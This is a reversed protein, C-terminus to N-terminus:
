EVEVTRHYLKGSRTYVLTLGGSENAAIAPYEGLALRVPDTFSVRGGERTFATAMIEDKRRWVAWTTDIGTDDKVTAFHPGHRTEQTAPGIQILSNAPAKMKKGGWINAMFADLFISGIIAGRPNNPLEGIGIHNFDDGQKPYASYAAWTVPQAKAKVRLSNTYRSSQVSYGNLACHWVPPLKPRPIIMFDFKEGTKMGDWKGKRGVSWKTKDLAYWTCDKSMIVFEGAEPDFAVRGLGTTVGFFDVDTSDKTIRALAQGQEHKKGKEAKDVEKTGSRFACLVSGGSTAVTPVYIRSSKFVRTAVIAKWGNRFGAAAIPSTNKIWTGDAKFYVSAFGQTMDQTDVTIAEVGDKIAIATRAFQGGAIMAENSVSKIRTKV